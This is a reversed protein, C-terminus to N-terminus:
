QKFMDKNEQMIKDAKSELEKAEKNIQEVKDTIGKIKDRFENRGKSDVMAQSIGKATDCMESRKKMEQSKAQLYEKFKEQVKLKSAEDFKKSADGYGKSAKEFATVAEKATSKVAEVQSEETIAAEDDIMKDNKENAEKFATNGDTISKNAEDVLKNAKETEYSNCALVLATIMLLSIFLNLKNKFTM